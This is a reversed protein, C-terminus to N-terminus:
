EGSPGDPLVACDLPPPVRSLEGPVSPGRSAPLRVLGRVSVGELNMAAELPRVQLHSKETERRTVSVSTDHLKSPFMTLNTM